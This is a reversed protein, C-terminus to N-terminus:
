SVHSVTIAVMNIALWSICDSGPKYAIHVYNSPHFFFFFTISHM